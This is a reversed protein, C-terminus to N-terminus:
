LFLKFIPQLLPSSLPVKYEKKLFYDVYAQHWKKETIIKQIVFATPKIEYFIQFSDAKTEGNLLMKLYIIKESTNFQIDQVEGYSKAIRNLIFKASIERIGM